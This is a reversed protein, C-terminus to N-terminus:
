GKMILVMDRFLPMPVSQALLEGSENYFAVTYPKGEEVALGGEVPRCTAEAQGNEVKTSCLLRGVSSGTEDTLCCYVGGQGTLKEASVHLVLTCGEPYVPRHTPAATSSDIQPASFDTPATAAASSSPQPTTSETPAATTSVSSTASLTPEVPESAVSSSFTPPIAAITTQVAASPRQSSSPETTQAPTTAAVPLHMQENPTQLRGVSFCALIVLVACAAGAAIYQLRIPYRRKSAQVTQPLRLASQEWEDPVPIHKLADFKIEM